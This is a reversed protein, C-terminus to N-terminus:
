IEKTFIFWDLGLEFNPLKVARDYGRASWFQVAEAHAESTKLWIKHCGQERAYAEVKEVLAAGLGSQRHEEAVLLTEIYCVGRGVQCTVYAVLEKQKFIGFCQEASVFDEASWGHRENFRTWERKSLGRRAEPTIVMVMPDM